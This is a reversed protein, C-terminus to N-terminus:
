NDKVLTHECALVIATRGASTCGEIHAGATLLLQAIKYNGGAAAHILPTKYQCLVHINAGAEILFKVTDISIEVSPMTSCPAMIM